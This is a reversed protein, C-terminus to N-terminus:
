DDQHEVVEHHTHGHRTYLIGGICVGIGLLILLGGLAIEQLLIAGTVCLIGGLILWAIGYLIEKIDQLLALIGDTGKM